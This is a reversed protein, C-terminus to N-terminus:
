ISRRFPLIRMRGKELENFLPNEVVQCAEAAFIAAKQKEGNEVAIGYFSYAEYVRVLSLETVQYQWRVLFYSLM